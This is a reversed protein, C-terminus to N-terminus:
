SNEVTQQSLHKERERETKGLIFHFNLDWM